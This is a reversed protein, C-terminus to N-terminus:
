SRAASKPTSSKSDSKRQAERLDDRIQNVPKLDLFQTVLTRTADFLQKIRRQMQPDDSRLTQEATRLTLDFQPRGPLEDLARILEEAAAFDKKDIKQQVRSILINRRAVIDVLDERVASLRAEAALRADDDPLPVDVREHAGAVIPVRAFLAGGHKVLVFQIRSKDVPIVIQGAADTTGFRPPATDGPKGLYIEYGVLRKDRATRSRLRLTSPAPDARLAIAVQEVRGQRRPPFPARSASQIRGAVQGDKSEDIDIFTWPVVQIGGKKELQGGRTTSRRIPIFIDGPKIWRTAGPTLPLSAGRPKLTVRQADKPDREFHALPSFAERLLVFVQEPLAAQQRSQRHITSSWRQVYRDFERAALDISEPTWRITVLLLKEKEPPLPPPPPDAAAITTFTTARDVGTALQVTSSWSPTLCSNIRRELYQPLAASLEEAIGGPADIAIQIQVQYAELDWGGDKAFTRDVCILSLLNLAIGLPFTLRRIRLNDRPTQSM